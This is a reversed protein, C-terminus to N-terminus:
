VAMKNYIKFFSYKVMNKLASERREQEKNSELKKKRRQNKNDEKKGRKDKSEKISIM